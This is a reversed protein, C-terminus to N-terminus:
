AILENVLARLERANFPKDLRRNPVRDLFSRAGQTFAGGTIFVVREAMQPAIATLQLFFDMGTVIPMMVDCLIVDYSKGSSIEKLAERADTCTTIDHQKALLRRVTAASSEDDDIVLVTGSRQEQVSRAPAEEVPSVPAEFGAPLRIRFTTGAGNTSDVSIDGGLEDIIRQCMALGLGSGIGHAQAISFPTFVKDLMEAPIGAGSDRVEAVVFGDSDVFTKLRIQNAQENSLPMAQAANILLNLFVQGLRAENAFVPSIEGYDKVVVAQQRIENWAMRVATDMVRHLDLLSRTDEEARTFIKLDRVIDRVRNAAALADQVLALMEKESETAPATQEDVTGAALELNGIVATLPNNIEHAVGAALTGLLLMRDSLMLEAQLRKQETVDRTEFVTGTITGSDTRIPSAATQFHRTGQDTELSWEYLSTKGKLAQQHADIHVGAREPGIAEALTKGLFDSAELGRVRGGGYADTVQGKPTLVLVVDAMSALASRILM